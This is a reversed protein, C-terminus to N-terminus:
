NGFALIYGQILEDKTITGNKDTDLMDFAEKLQKEESKSLEQSAIYALVAKQLTMQTRFFRLNQMSNILEESAEKTAYFKQIWPDRLAESAMPRDEPAYQLLKKLFTKCEPSIREWVPELTSTNYSITGKYEIKGDIIKKITEDRDKSYFPPSGVLLLFLLVGTSWIDCQENYEKCQLVEPAM